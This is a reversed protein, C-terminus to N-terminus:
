GTAFYRTTQKSDGTGLMLPNNQLGELGRKKDGRIAFATLEAVSPHHWGNYVLPANEGGGTTGSSDGCWRIGPHM